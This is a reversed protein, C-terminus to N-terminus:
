QLAAIHPWSNHGHRLMGVLAKDLFAPIGSMYYEDYGGAKFKVQFTDTNDNFSDIKGNGFIACCVEDGVKFPRKGEEKQPIANTNVEVDKPPNFFSEIHKILEEPLNNETRLDFDAATDNPFRVTLNIFGGFINDHGYTGEDDCHRISVIVDPKNSIEELADETVGWNRWKDLTLTKNTVTSQFCHKLEDKIRYKQM